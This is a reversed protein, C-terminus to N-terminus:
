AVHQIGACCCGQSGRVLLGERGLGMEVRKQGVRRENVKQRAADEEQSGGAAAPAGASQAAPGAAGAAGSGAEGGQGQQEGGAEAPPAGAAMAAAAAAMSKAVQAKGGSRYTPVAHATAGTGTGQPGAGSAESAPPQPGTGETGGDADAPHQATAGEQGQATSDGPGDAQQGPEKGGQGQGEQGQGEQQGTLDELSTPGRAVKARHPEGGPGSGSVLREGTRLEHLLSQPIRPTPLGSPCAILVSSRICCVCLDKSSRTGELRTSDAHCDLVAM